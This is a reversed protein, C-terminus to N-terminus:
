TRELGVLNLLLRSGFRDFLLVFDVFFFNLPYILNDTCQVSHDGFNFTFPGGVTAVQPFTCTYVTSM